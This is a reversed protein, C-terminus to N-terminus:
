GPNELFEAFYACFEFIGNQLTCGRSRARWIGSFGVDDLTDGHRQRVLYLSAAIRPAFPILAKDENM